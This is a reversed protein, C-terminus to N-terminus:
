STVSSTASSAASYRRPDSGKRRSSRRGSQSRKVEVPASFELEGHGSRAGQFLRKLRRGLSSSRDSQQNSDEDVSARLAAVADCQEEVFTLCVPAIERAHFLANYYEFLAESRSQIKAEDLSEMAELRALLKQNSQCPFPPLSITPQNDGSSRRGVGLPSKFTAPAHNSPDQQANAEAHALCLKIFTHHLQLLSAFTGSFQLRKHNRRPNGLVVDVYYRVYQKSKSSAARSVDVAEKHATVDVGVYESSPAAPM